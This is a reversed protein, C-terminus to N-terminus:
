LIECQWRDRLSFLPSYLQKPLYRAAVVAQLLPSTANVRGMRGRFYNTTREPRM